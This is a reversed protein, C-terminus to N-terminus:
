LWTISDGLIFKANLIDQLDEDAVSMFRDGIYPNDSTLDNDEASFDEVYCYLTLGYISGLNEATLHELKEFVIRERYAEDGEDPRRYVGYDQGHLDLWAGSATNLFLQRRFELGCYQSNDVWEGVTRDIIKRLSNGSKNLESHLPLLDFIADAFDSM